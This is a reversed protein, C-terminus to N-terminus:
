RQQCFHCDFGAANRKHFTEPESYFDPSKVTSKEDKFTPQYPWVLQKLGLFSVPPTM